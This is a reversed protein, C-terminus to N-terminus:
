IAGNMFTAAIDSGGTVGVEQIHPVLALLSERSEMEARTLRHFIDIRDRPKSSTARLAWAISDAM